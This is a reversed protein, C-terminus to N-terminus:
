VSWMVSWYSLSGWWCNSSYAARFKKWIINKTSSARHVSSAMIPWHSAPVLFCRCLLVEWRMATSKMGQKWWIEEARKICGQNYKSVNWDDKRGEGGKMTRPGTRWRVTIKQRLSACYHSTAEIVRHNSCLFIRDLTMTSETGTDQIKNRYMRNVNM